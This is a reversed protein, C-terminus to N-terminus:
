SWGFEKIVDELFHAARTKIMHHQAVLGSSNLWIRRMEIPDRLYYKFKDKWDHKSIPVYNEGAVFGLEALGPIEEFFPCAMAACELYKSVLYPINDNNPFRGFGTTALAGMHKGMWRAYGNRFFSGAPANTVDYTCHPITSVMLSESSMIETRLPYIEPSTSGSCAITDYRGRWETPEFWWPLAFPLTRFKSGCEAYEPIKDVHDAYPSFVLDARKIAALMDDLFEEDPWHLDDNVYVKRLGDPAEQLGEWSFMCIMLNYKYFPFGGPGASKMEEETVFSIPHGSMGLERVFESMFGLPHTSASAKHVVLIKIHEPDVFDYHGVGIKRKELSLFEDKRNRGKNFESNRDRCNASVLFDTTRIKMEGLHRYFYESHECIKLGEDWKCRVLAERKALFFNPVFDWGGDDNKRNYLHILRNDRKRFRGKWGGLGSIEGALIDTKSHTIELVAAELDSTGGIVTDDDLMLVLDADSAGVLMNRGKSLGVDYGSRIYRVGKLRPTQPTLSDDLVIIDRYGELHEQISSVCRELADPREFTKILVDVTPPNTM